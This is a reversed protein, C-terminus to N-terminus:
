LFCFFFFFIFLFRQQGTLLVKLWLVCITWTFIFVFAFYREPASNNPSVEFFCCKLFSVLSLSASPVYFIHLSVPKRKAGSHRHEKTPPSPALCLLSPPLRLRKDVAKFTGGKVKERRGSTPEKGERQMQRDQNAEEWMLPVEQFCKAATSILRLEEIVDSGSHGACSSAEAPIGQVSPSHRCLSPEGPEETATAKSACPLVPKQRQKAEM